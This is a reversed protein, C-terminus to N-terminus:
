ILLFPLIILVVFMKIEASTVPHIYYGIRMQTPTLDMSNLDFIFRCVEILSLISTFIIISALVARAKEQTRIFLIAIFFIAYYFVRIKMVTISQRPDVSLLSSVFQVVLFSVIFIVIIKEPAEFSRVHALRIVILVTLIMLSLYSIKPACQATLLTYTSCVLIFLDFIRLIIEKKLSINKYYGTM